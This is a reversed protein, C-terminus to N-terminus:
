KVCSVIYLYLLATFYLEESHKDKSDPQKTTPLGIDLKDTTGCYM